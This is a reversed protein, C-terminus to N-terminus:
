GAIPQPVRGVVEVLDVPRQDEKITPDVAVVVWQLLIQESLAAKVKDALFNM